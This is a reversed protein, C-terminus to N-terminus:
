GGAGALARTTTTTTGARDAEAAVRRHVIRGVIACAALIEPEALRYRVATGSRRAAVLGAARLVALHQSANPLACGIAAALDGVTREGDGLVHLLALRKPDTLVRCLEAHLRFDDADLDISM